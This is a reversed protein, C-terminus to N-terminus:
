MQYKQNGNTCKQVVICCSRICNKKYNLGPINCVVLSGWEICSEVTTFFKKVFLLLKLNASQTGKLCLSAPTLSVVNLYSHWEKAIYIKKETKNEKESMVEFYNVYLSFSAKPDMKRSATFFIIIFSQAFNGYNM